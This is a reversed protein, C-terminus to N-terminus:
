PWGMEKAANQADLLKKVDELNAGCHSCRPSDYSQLWTQHCPCSLGYTVDMRRPPQVNM